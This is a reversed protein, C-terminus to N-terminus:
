SLLGQPERHKLVGSSTPPIVTLVRTSVVARFNRESGQNGRGDLPMSLAGEGAPPLLHRHGGARTRLLGAQCAPVPGEWDEHGPVGAGPSVEGHKYHSCLGRPCPGFLQTEMGCLLCAQSAGVGWWCVPAGQGQRFGMKEVGSHWEPGLVLELQPHLPNEVGCRPPYFHFGVACPRRSPCCLGQRSHRWGVAGRLGFSISLRQPPLRLRRVTLPLDLSPAPPPLLLCLAPGGRGQTRLGARM